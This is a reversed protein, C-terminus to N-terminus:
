NRTKTWGSQLSRIMSRDGLFGRTHRDTSPSNNNVLFKLLTNGVGLHLIPGRIIGILIPEWFPEWHIVGAVKHAIETWSYFVTKLHKPYWLVIWMFSNINSGELYYCNLLFSLPSNVVVPAFSRAVGNTTEQLVFVKALFSTEQNKWLQRSLFEFDLITTFCNM